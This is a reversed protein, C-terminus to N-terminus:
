LNIAGSQPTTDELRGSIQFSAVGDQRILRNTATDVFLNHADADAAYSKEALDTTPISIGNTLAATPTYNIFQDGRMFIDKVDVVYDDTGATALITKLPGTNGTVTRLSTAPDDSLVAPLWAFANNLLGIAAGDQNIRYTKPRVCSLGVIFGPEKFFRDKDARQTIAWSVASVASGDSPDVTNSPYSWESTYRLLEPIHQEETRVRVGYTRLYQEYDMETLGHERLFQWQRLANDVDRASVTDPDPTANVPISVDLTTLASKLITSHLWSSENHKTKVLPVDDIEAGTLWHEGEDRFYEEVIRKTCLKAWPISTAYNYWPAAAAEDYSSMDKNLDLMMEVFDASGDLDRHKVYFWYYEAHWGILPNNIPDTVIRAQWLINRLTEGPLVPAIACPQLQWPKTRLNWPHVPNRVRRGAQPVNTYAPYAM